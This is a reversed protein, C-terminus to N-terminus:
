ISVNTVQGLVITTPIIVANDTNQALFNALKMRITFSGNRPISKRSCCPKHDPCKGIGRGCQPTTTEAAVVAGGVMAAALLTNFFRVM